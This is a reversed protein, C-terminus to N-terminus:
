RLLIIVVPQLMVDEDIVGHKELYKYKALYYDKESDLLTESELGKNQVLDLLRDPLYCVCKRNYSLAYANTDTHLINVM